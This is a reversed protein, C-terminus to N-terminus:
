FFSDRILLDKRDGENEGMDIARKETSEM